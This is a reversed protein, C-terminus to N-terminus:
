EEFPDLEDDPASLGLSALAENASKQVGEDDDDNLAAQIVTEADPCRLKGLAVLAAARVRNKEDSRAAQILAECAATSGLDGLAQAAWMRGLWESDTTLMSLLPELARDTQALGLLRAAPSRTLPIPHALLALLRDIESDDFEATWELLGREAVNRVKNVRDELLELLRGRAAREGNTGLGICSAERLNPQDSQSLELLLELVGTIQMQGALGSLKQRHPESIDDTTLREGIVELSLASEGSNIAALTQRRVEANGTLLREILDSM